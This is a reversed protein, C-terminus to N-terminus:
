SSAESGPNEFLVTGDYDIIKGWLGLGGGALDAASALMRRGVLTVLYLAQNERLAELAHRATNARSVEEVLEAPAGAAKFWESLKELDMPAKHAHTYHLGQAQKVAKGFFSVLGARAFGQRVAEELAFGFFDAIQIFATEPLDPRLQMARKESRGGTTLVVESLGAARAVSLGSEITATYAEHSFPKVLGTTGLISIGGVIGLRPNLTKKALSEGEPVSIEVEVGPRDGNVSIADLAEEVAAAIMERPVPNIAPQGVPIPLGPRTVRGVGTGGIIDAPGPRGPELRVRAWIAARHTVDPDDGGDKIVVARAEHPSLVETEAVDVDLADGQPLTVRVRTVPPAGALALLAAKTAAAAATGTSFGTRLKKKGM